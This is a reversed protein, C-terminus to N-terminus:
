LILMKILSDTVIDDDEVHKYKVKNYLVKM